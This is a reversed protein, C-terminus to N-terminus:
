GNQVGEFHKPKRVFKELYKISKLNLLDYIKKFEKQPEIIFKDYQFMCSDGEFEAFSQIIRNYAYKFETKTVVGRVTDKDKHYLSNYNDLWNRVVFIYKADPYYNPIRKWEMAMIGPNLAIKAGNFQKIFKWIDQRNKYRKLHLVSIALMLEHPEFAIQYHKKLLHYIISTGGGRLGIIFIRM